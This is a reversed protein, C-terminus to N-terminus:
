RVTSMKRRASHDSSVAKMETGNRAVELETMNVLSYLSFYAPANEEKATVYEQLM